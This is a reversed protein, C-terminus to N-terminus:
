RHVSSQEAGKISLAADFSCQIALVSVIVGSFDPVKKNVLAKCHFWHGASLVTANM